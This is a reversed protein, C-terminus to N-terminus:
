KTKNWFHQFVPPPNQNRTLYIGAKRAIWQRSAGCRRVNAMRYGIFESYYRMYLDHKLVCTWRTRKGIKDAFRIKKIENFLGPGLENTILIYNSPCPFMEFEVNLGFYTAVVFMFIINM